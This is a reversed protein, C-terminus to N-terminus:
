TSPTIGCRTAPTHPSSVSGSKSSSSSCSTVSSPSSTSGSEWGPYQASSTCRVAAGTRYCSRQLIEIEELWADRQSAEMAFSTNLVIVGIVEEPSKSLFTGIPDSYYARNM